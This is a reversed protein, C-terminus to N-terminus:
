LTGSSMPLLWAPKSEPNPATSCNHLQSSVLWTDGLHCVRTGPGVQSPLTQFIPLTPLPYLLHIAPLRSWFNLTVCSLTAISAESTKTM